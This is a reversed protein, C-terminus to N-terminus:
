NGFIQVIYTKKDQIVYGIGISKWEPNIMNYRHSGSEELLDQLGIDSIWWGAVNEGVSRSTIKINKSKAFDLIGLGEMTVHGLYNYKAMDEAKKQALETLTKDQVLTSRGLSTRLANITWITDISIRNKDTRLTTKQDENLPNKISWFPVRSIPLNFYAYGDNQVTEIKYVGIEPIPFSQKILVDTRLYGDSGIYNKPFQYEIVDGSPTTLFYDPKVKQWKKVRFQMKGISRLTTLSVLNKGGLDRTRDVYVTGSWTFWSRTDQSYWRLTARANGYQIGINDLLIIEGSKKYSKKWQEITLEGLM